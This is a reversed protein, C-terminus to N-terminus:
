REGGASEGTQLAKGLTELNDEMITFYNKGKQLDEETLVSLNHIPLPVLGAEKQIVDVVRSKVNQETLLYRINLVKAKEILHELEKQTPEHSNSIGAISLQELGYRKEWYGYAAHSVIFTKTKAKNVTDQFKEHLGDLEDALQEYNERFREKEEPITQALKEFIFHAMERSYLPDLWLHPDMTYDHGHEGDSGHEDSDQGSDTIEVAEGVAFVRVGEEELIPKLKNMFGELGYGIYFFLDAEAMHILERQSPEYHHEDVGPPYVTEVKFTKGGIRQAFYELPYVTTYITFRSGDREKTKNEESCAPLFLLPILFLIFTLKRFKKM